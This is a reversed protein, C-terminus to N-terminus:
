ALFGLGTMTTAARGNGEFVCSAACSKAKCAEELAL